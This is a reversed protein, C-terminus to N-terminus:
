LFAYPDIPLRQSELLVIGKRIFLVSCLALPLSCLVLLAMSWARHETLIKRCADMLMDVKPNRNFRFLLSRTLM